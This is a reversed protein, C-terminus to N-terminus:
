LMAQGPSLPDCARWPVATQTLGPNCIGAGIANLLLVGPSTQVGACDWLSRSCSSTEGGDWVWIWPAGCRLSGSCLGLWPM